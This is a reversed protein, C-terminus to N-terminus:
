RGTATAVTAHQGPELPIVSSTLWGPVVACAGPVPRVIFQRGFPLGPMATMASGARPDAFALCGSEAHAPAESAALYVWAAYRAPAAFAPQDYGDRWAQVAIDVETVPPAEDARALDNMAALLQERLAALGPVATLPLAQCREGSPAAARAPDGDTIGGLSLSGIIVGTKWHRTVTGAPAPETITM